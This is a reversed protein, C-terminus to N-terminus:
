KLPILSRLKAVAGSTPSLNRAYGLVRREQDWDGRDCIERADQNAAVGDQALGVRFSHSSVENAIQWAIDSTVDANAAILADVVIRRLAYNIGAPSLRDGLRKSQDISVLLADGAETANETRWTNWAQVDGMTRASVAKIKGEGRQDTKSRRILADGRGDPRPTIDACDFLHLDQNRRGLDESLGLLVLDRLGRPTSADCSARLKAISPISKGHRATPSSAPLPVDTDSRLALAQGQTSGMDRRLRKMESKVIVSKTPDQAELVRTHLSAISSLLHSISTYKLPGQDFGTTACYLIFSRVEFPQAASLVDDHGRWAAWQRMDSDFNYRAKNSLGRRHAELLISTESM